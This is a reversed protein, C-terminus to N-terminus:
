IIEISLGGRYSRPYLQALVDPHMSELMELSQQYETEM